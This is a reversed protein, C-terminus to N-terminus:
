LFQFIVSLLAKIGIKLKRDTINAIENINVTVSDTKWQWAFRKKRALIFQFHFKFFCDGPPM